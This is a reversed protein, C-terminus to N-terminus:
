RRASRSNLAATVRIERISALTIDSVFTAVQLERSRVTSVRAPGRPPLARLSYTLVGNAPMGDRDESVLAATHWGQEPPLGTARIIAGGPTRDIGLSAIQAVLPRPDDRVVIEIPDLTEEDPGSRFWNFPNLRSGGFGCGSLSTAAALTLILKRRHM